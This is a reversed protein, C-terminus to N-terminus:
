LDKEPAPAPTPGDILVPEGPKAEIASEEIAEDMEIQAIVAPTVATPIPGYIPPLGVAALAANDRARIRLTEEPRRGDNAIAESLALTGNELKIREALADKYNDVAPPKPWTWQLPLLINPFEFRLSEMATPIPTPPLLGEYQALRVLRRVIQNLLRREMKAQFREISKAYRSGDFRASSMNHNSADKRLVMWPMEMAGGIDTQKERRYDVYNAAPQHGQLQKVDWGPRIYQRVRRRWPLVTETPEVFESDPHNSVFFVAHDAAARAADQVQDDYDRLDAAIQLVSAFGPFGRRQQAFRRRYLHLALSAPLRDKTQPNSPDFIRYAVVRGSDDVEIGSHINRAMLNSDISEPGIDFIKYASVSPGIIERALVEGYTMWQAVWGDLLDVLSLGDQYECDDSWEHFIAEVMANFDNDQTLCQLAPGRASVTNTQQTEIAGDLLPNNISEHRTRRHLEPLDTPMDGLVNESVNQWHSANLRTTDAGEWARNARAHQPPKGAPFDYPTIEGVGQGSFVDIQGWPSADNAM